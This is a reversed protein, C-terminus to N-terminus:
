RSGSAAMGFSVSGSMGPRVDAGLVTSIEGRVEFTQSAADVEANLRTLRGQIARGTASPVFTFAMGPKLAPLWDAPAIASIELKGGRAVALLPTMVSVSEFPRMKRNLVLGDYPALVSCFRRRASASRLKARAEALQAESIAVDLRGATQLAELRAQNEFHAAAAREAARAQDEEAREIDCSFEVLVDGKRFKTGDEAIALIRGAMESSLVAEDPGRVVGQATLERQPVLRAESQAMGETLPLILFVIGFALRWM